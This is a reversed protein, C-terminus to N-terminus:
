PLATPPSLNLDGSVKGRKEKYPSLVFKKTTFSEEKVGLDKLRGAIQYVCGNENFKYTVWVTGYYNKLTKYQLPCRPILMKDKFDSEITGLEKEKAKAENYHGNEFFYFKRTLNDIIYYIIMGTM